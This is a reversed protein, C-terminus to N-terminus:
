ARKDSVPRWLVTRLEQDGNKYGAGQGRRSPLDVHEYTCRGDERIKNPHVDWGAFVERLAKRLSLYIKGQHFHVAKPYQYRFRKLCSGEEEFSFHYECIHPGIYIHDIESPKVHTTVNDLLGRVMTKRSVHLILAMDETVIVVPACDATAVGVSTNPQDVFVGDAKESGQTLEQTSVINGGHIQKPFLVGGALSM